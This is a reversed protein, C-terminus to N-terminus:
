QAHTVHRYGTNTQVEVLFSHFACFAIQDCMNRGGEGQVRIVRTKVMQWTFDVCLGPNSCFCKSRRDNDDVSGLRQNNSTYSNFGMLLLYAHPITGSCPPAVVALCWWQFDTSVLISIMGLPIPLNFTFDIFIASYRSVFVSHGSLILLPPKDATAQAM